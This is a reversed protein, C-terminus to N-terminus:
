PQQHHQLFAKAGAEGMYGKLDDIKLISLDTVILGDLTNFETDLNFKFFKAGLGIYIPILPPMTNGTNLQAEIANVRKTLDRINPNAALVARDAPDLVLDERLPTRPKVLAADPSEHYRKLYQIIMAKSRDSVENSISVPGMLYKYKPNSAVFQGIGGFLAMLAFSRQYEPVVFSRGLELSTKLYTKLLASHDFFQSTYIGKDGYKEILQDVLGLRYAGAIDGTKKDIAILHYYDADFEDLDRSKGSGEGVSRFTIERLRGLEALTVPIDSGKAFYVKMRKESSEPAMDFIVSAKQALERHIMTLEGAPAIAQFERIDRLSARNEAKDKLGLTQGRLKRMATVANGWGLVDRGENVPGITLGITQNMRNGIERVHFIAGVPTQLARLAKPLRETMYAVNLFSASPQGNVYISQVQTTPVERLLTVVGNRWRGDIADTDSLRLKQSVTGTPFIILAHGDRLTQAMQRRGEINDLKAQEGGYPNIVISNEMLGPVMGLMGTLAIKVDPRVKSVLAALAIGEVGNMAHNSVIILPGSKPITDLLTADIQIDLGFADSLKVWFPTEERSDAVLREMMKEIKDITLPRYVLRALSNLFKGAISNSNTFKTEIRGTATVEISPNIFSEKRFLGECTPAASATVVSFALVFAVFVATLRRLNPSFLHVM